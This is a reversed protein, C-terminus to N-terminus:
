TKKVFVSGSGLAGPSPVPLITPPTTPAGPVASTHVHVSLWTRLSSLFTTLAEVLVPNDLEAGINSGINIASPAIHIQPGDDKGLTMRDAAATALAHAFDRVGPVFVASSLMFRNDDGPDVDGGKSLWVDLSAESFVLLGTDGEKIPFTIRYGGGGPFSVPVGVIAPLNEVKREDDEGIYAAKITPQVTVKQLKEDYKTVRAVIATHVDTMRSAIAARIVEALTTPRESM